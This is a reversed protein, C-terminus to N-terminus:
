IIFCIHSVGSMCFSMSFIVSGYRRFIVWLEGEVRCLGIMVSGRM